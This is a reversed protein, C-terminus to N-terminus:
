PSEGLYPAWFSAMYSFLLVHFLLSWAFRDRRRAVFYLFTLVALLLVAGGLAILVFPRGQFRLPRSLDLGVLLPSSFAVFALLFGSRPPTFGYTRFALPATWIAFLAPLWLLAVFASRTFLAVGLAFTSVPLFPGGGGRLGVWSLTGLFFCGLLLLAIPRSTM